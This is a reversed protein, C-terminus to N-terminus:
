SLRVFLSEALNDVDRNFIELRVEILRQKSEEDIPLQKEVVMGSRGQRAFTGSGLGGKIGLIGKM